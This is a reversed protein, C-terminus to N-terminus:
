KIRAAEIAETSAPRLSTYPANAASSCIFYLVGYKSMRQEYGLDSDTDAIVLMATNPYTATVVFDGVNFRPRPTHIAPRLLKATNILKLAENLALVAAIITRLNLKAKM